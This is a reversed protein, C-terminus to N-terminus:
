ISHSQPHCKVKESSFIYYIINPLYNRWKRPKFYEKQNESFYQIICYNGKKQMDRSKDRIM